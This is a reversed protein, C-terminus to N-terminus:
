TLIRAPNPTPDLIPNCVEMKARTDAENARAEHMSVQLKQVEEAQALWNQNSVIAVASLLM